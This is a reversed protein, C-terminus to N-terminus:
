PAMKGLGKVISEGRRGPNEGWGVQTPKRYAYSMSLGYRSKRACPGRGESVKKESWMLAVLSGPPKERAEKRSRYRNKGKGALAKGCADGCNQEHRLVPIEVQQGDAVCKQGRRLGSKGPCDAKGRFGQINPRFSKGVEMESSM